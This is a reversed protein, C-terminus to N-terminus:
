EAVRGSAARALLEQEAELRRERLNGYRAQLEEKKAADVVIHVGEATALVDGSELDVIRGATTILRRRREVIRGEARIRRGIMVPKKYEVSLRATVAWLDEGICSWSLVEDLITSVVGGHVMGEWGQFREAVELETWCSDTAVHLALQLGIPNTDGCAFCAHPDVRLVVGQSLPDDSM